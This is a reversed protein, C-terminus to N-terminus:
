RGETRSRRISKNAPPDVVKGRKRLRVWRRGISPKLKAMGKGMRVHRNRHVKGISNGPDLIMVVANKIIIAVVGHHDMEDAVARHVNTVLAQMLPSESIPDVALNSVEAL